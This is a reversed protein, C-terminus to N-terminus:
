GNTPLKYQNDVKPDYIEFDQPFAIEPTNILKMNGTGSIVLKVTVADNTKLETANISSSISFEGVAGSFNAPKGAPLPDVHIKIKPAVINKRVNVYNGGNFFAEFPDRSHVQQTVVAEFNVSPIELDGSQQPFLVYQRWVLTKYNRGQYHEMDMQKNRPLEVEQTHFGKMDPQSNDLSTLNLTTYVKYTLLIAEQEYVKTKSATATIFLDKDSINATQSQGQSSSQSNQGQQAANLGQTQDPPLVKITVANSKM